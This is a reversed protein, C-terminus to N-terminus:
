GVILKSFLRTALDAKTKSLRQMSLLSELQKLVKSQKKNESINKSLRSEKNNMLADLPTQNNEKLHIYREVEKIFDKDTRQKRGLHLVDTAGIRGEIMHKRIPKPVSSLKLMNYIHAVCIESEDAIEQPSFGNDKLKSVIASKKITDYKHDGKKKLRAFLHANAQASEELQKKGDQSIHRSTSTKM